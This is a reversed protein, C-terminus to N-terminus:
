VTNDSSNKPRQLTHTLKVQRRRKLRAHIAQLVPWRYQTLHYITRANLTWRTHWEMVKGYFEIREFDSQDFLQEFQEQRMLTSPSVTKYSEDYTTKLIIIVPGSCICLDMAVIKEGFRFRYIRARGLAGFNELMQRYFRGQANDPHIATGNAAKWGASELAGYDILAAAVDAPDTLCELHTETGDATLKNRQKKANQRLNKGRSEWYAQFGGSIDVWATDIHDDIQLGAVDDPRPTTLPDLQPLGLSLSLGPLVALLESSMRGGHPLSSIWACLPSQSPQFVVWRGFGCRQLIVGAVLAGDMHKLALLEEGTGFEALLPVLFPSELFAAHNLSRQLCNWQSAIAPFQSIPLLSWTM